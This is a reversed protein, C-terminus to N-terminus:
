LQDRFARLRELDLGRAGTDILWTLDAKAGPENGEQYRLLARDFRAPADTDDLALTLDLYPLAEAPRGKQKKIGILNRLMRLVMQRKAMPEFHVESPYRGTLQLIKEVAEERSMEKGGEYVDVLRLAGEVTQYSLMFHGPLGAGRLADVGCRRALELFVVSLTIPIGERDDIVENLYSNSEHYYDLRSGHFGNREFMSRRVAALREALEAEDPLTELIESAMEDLLDEYALPDVDPNEVRAILLGARFIDIKEEAKLLEGTLEDALRKIHAEGALRDIEELRRELAKRYDELAARAAEPEEALQSVMLERETVDTGTLFSEVDAKLADRKEADVTVPPLTEGVRFGRFEAETGRFKCLGALGGRLGTDDSEFVVEGNVFCTLEEPSVHVRIRNWEGPRYAGAEAQDLIDWSYVDPGNFRTLRMRGGTPYFGYHVQDGDSAFALGAAGSEDNLKVEVELQYSEPPEEQWLCLSRGGFGSGLGEVRIRGARQSWDAGMVTKWRRPDLAGITVWREMPIVNPKALLVKLANVPMAFGLNETVMSKLSLVGQVKGERDIVPGGSNGPEVPIAVQILPYPGEGIDERFGSVIGEVVSFKLGQPNGLALVADGQELLNSDGLELAPLPEEVEIRILALDLRRDSAHVEVPEFRRGDRLEVAIKRRDNIVHWNTAILGEESIIFGSGTAGWEAARGQQHVVVVSEMMRATLQPVLGDEREEGCLLAPGALTWLGMWVIVRHM